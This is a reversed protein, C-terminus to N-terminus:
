RFNIIADQIATSCRAKESYELLNTHGSFDQSLAIYLERIAEKERGSDVLYAVRRYILAANQPQFYTGDEIIELAKSYNLATTVYYESYDLWIDPHYPDLETVKVYAKEAEAFQENNMLSEALIIWYEPNEPELKVAQRMHTLAEAYQGLENYCIGMGM